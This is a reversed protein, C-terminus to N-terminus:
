TIGGFLLVGEGFLTEGMDSWCLEGADALPLVCLGTLEPVEQVRLPSLDEDIDGSCAAEADGALDQISMTM